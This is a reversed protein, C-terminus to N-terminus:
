LRITDSVSVITRYQFNTLARSLRLPYALTDYTVELLSTVRGGNRLTFRFPVTLSTDPFSYWNFVKFKDSEREGVRGGGHSWPSSVEFASDST